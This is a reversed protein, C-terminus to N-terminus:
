EDKQEKHFLKGNSLLFINRVRPRKAIIGFKRKPFNLLNLSRESTKKFRIFSNFRSINHVQAFGNIRLESM